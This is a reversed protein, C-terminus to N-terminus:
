QYLKSKEIGLSSKSQFERDIKAKVPEFTENFQKTTDAIEELFVCYTEMDIQIRETIAIMKCDYYCAMESAKLLTMIESLNYEEDEKMLLVAFYHNSVNLTQPTNLSLLIKKWQLLNTPLSEAPFMTKELFERIKEEHAKKLEQQRTM